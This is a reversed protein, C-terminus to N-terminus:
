LIKTFTNIGADCIYADPDQIVRADRIANGICSGIESMRVDLHHYKCISYALRKLDMSYLLDDMEVHPMQECQNVIESTLIITLLRNM